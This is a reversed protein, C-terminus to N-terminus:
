VVQRALRRELLADDVRAVGELDETLVQGKTERRRVFHHLGPQVAGEVAGVEKVRVEAVQADAGRDAIRLHPGLEPDRLFEADLDAAPATPTQDEGGRAQGEAGDAHVGRQG